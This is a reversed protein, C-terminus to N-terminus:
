ILEYQNHRKLTLCNILLLPKRTAEPSSLHCLSYSHVSSDLDLNLAASLGLNDATLNYLRVTTNLTYLNVASLHVASLVAPLKIRSLSVAFKSETRLHQFLQEQWIVRENMIDLEIM